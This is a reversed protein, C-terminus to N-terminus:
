AIALRGKNRLTGPRDRSDYRIGVSDGFKDPKEIYGCWLRM